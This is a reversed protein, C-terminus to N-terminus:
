SKCGATTLWTSTTASVMHDAVGFINVRQSKVCYKNGGSNFFINVYM